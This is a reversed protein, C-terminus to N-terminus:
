KYCGCNNINSNLKISKCFSGCGNIAELVRQAEFLQKNEVRYKLINITMQLFDRKFTLDANTNTLCRLDTSNFYDKSISIYCDYLRNISFTDKKSISITTNQNTLNLNSNMLAALDEVKILYNLINFPKEIITSSESNPIDGINESDNTTDIEPEKIDELLKEKDVIYIKCGDTVYLTYSTEQLFGLNGNITRDVIDELWNVTPLIFHFITYYGDKPIDYYAEDLFSDHSTFITTLYDKQKTSTYQIYNITYTDSYKFVKEKYRIDLDFDSDVDEPLYFDNEQSLDKIQIQNNGVNCVTFVPIYAM